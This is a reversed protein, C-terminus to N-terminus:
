KKLKADGGAMQIFVRKMEEYFNAAQQPTKQKTSRQIWENRIRNQDKTFHKLINKDTESRISVIRGLATDPSLGILLDRFEGWKMGSLDRSM